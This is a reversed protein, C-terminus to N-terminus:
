VISLSPSQMRTKRQRSWPNSWTSIMCLWHVALLEAVNRTRRAPSRTPLEASSNQCTSGNRSPRTPSPCGSWYESCESSQAASTVNGSLTWGVTSLTSSASSAPSLICTTFVSSRHLQLLVVPGATSTSSELSSCSRCTHVPTATRQKCRSCALEVSESSRGSPLPAAAPPTTTLLSEAQCRCSSSKARASQSSSYSAPEVPLPATQPNSSASRPDVPPKSEHDLPGDSPSSEGRGGGSNGCAFAREAEIGM